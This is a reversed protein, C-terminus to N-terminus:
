SDIIAAILSVMVSAPQDRSCDLGATKRTTSPGPPPSLRQHLNVFVFFRMTQAWKLLAMSVGRKQVVTGGITLPERKAPSPRDAMGSTGARTRLRDWRPSSGKGHSTVLFCTVRLRTGHLLRGQSGGETPPLPPRPGPSGARVPPPLGGTEPRLSCKGGTM